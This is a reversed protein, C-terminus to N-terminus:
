GRFGTNPKIFLWCRLRMGFKNGHSPLAAVKKISASDLEVTIKIYQDTASASSFRSDNFANAIGHSEFGQAFLSAFRM